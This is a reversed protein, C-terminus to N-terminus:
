VDKYTEYIGIIIKILEEETFDLTRMITPPIITSKIDFLDMIKDSKHYHIIIEKWLNRGIIPEVFNSFAKNDTREDFNYTLWMDIIKNILTKKTLGELSKKIDDYSKGKMKDRLGENIAIHNQLIKVVDNHGGKKALALSLGGITNVDAGRDLLLQVVDAHGNESAWILSENGNANVDAGNDLLLKVIDYFGFKSAYRLPHNDWINVDAGKKLAIKVGKLYGNGVSLILLNLPEIKHLKKLEEDSKGVMKDRLGENIRKLYNDIDFLDLLENFNTQHRYDMYINLLKDNANDGFNDYQEPDAGYKLLLKIASFDGKTVNASDLALMLANKYAYKDNVYNVDAGAELTLRIMEENLIYASKIFLENLEEQSLTNLYKIIDDDSKPSMKDRLGENLDKYRKLYKM